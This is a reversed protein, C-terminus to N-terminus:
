WSSFSTFILFFFLQRTPAQAFFPSFFDRPLNVPLPPRPPTNLTNMGNDPLEIFQVTARISLRGRKGPDSGTFRLSGLKQEARAAVVKKQSNMVDGFRAYLITYEVAVPVSRCEPHFGDPMWESPAGSTYKSDFQLQIGPDAWDWEDSGFHMVHVTCKDGDSVLCSAPSLIPMKALISPKSCLDELEALNMELDCSFIADEGFNLPQSQQPVAAQGANPHWSPCGDAPCQCKGDLEM